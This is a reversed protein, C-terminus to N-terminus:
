NIRPSIGMHRLCQMSLLFRLVNLILLTELSRYSPFISNEVINSIFELFSLGM